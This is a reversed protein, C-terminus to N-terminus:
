VCLNERVGECVCVCLCKRGRHAAAEPGARQSFWLVSSVSDSSSQISPFNLNM